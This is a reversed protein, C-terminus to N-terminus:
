TQKAASTRRGATTQPIPLPMPMVVGSNREATSVADIGGERFLALATEAIGDRSLAFDKRRTM